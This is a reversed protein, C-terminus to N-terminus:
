RESFWSLWLISTASGEASYPSCEGTVYANQDRDVAIALAQVNAYAGLFTSYMLASGAPNLKTVFANYVKLQEFNWTIGCKGDAGCETDVANVTVPFDPSITAGAVYADGLSDVAIGNAWDQFTGGLYTSYLLTSGDGSIKAVFADQPFDHPGGANPQLPHATLFDSSFTGGAIFASHDPAVAIASASDINTGGLYTSYALVPDIVLERSHDYPGVQFGVENRSNFSYRVPVPTKSDLTPQDAVAKQYAAPRHFLLKGGDTKIVLNGDPDTQLGLAGEFGLRVRNVDAGPSIVFDYELRGQNGYYVLDIGPYVGHEAVTRYTSINTQWKAPERGTFYNAKGPLEDMPELPHTGTAGLVRM